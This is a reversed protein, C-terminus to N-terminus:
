RAAIDAHQRFYSALQLAIQDAMANAIQREAAETDLDSAFYQQDLVDVQNLARASGTTITKGPADNAYLKWDARGILRIWTAADLQTIGIGQGAISYTVSLHYRLPTAGSDSGFRDQLAQRLLQGPRDGILDVSTAALDRQAPGPAGSATRMYVPQFGCGALPALLLIALGATAMWRHRSPRIM